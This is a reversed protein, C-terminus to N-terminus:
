LAPEIARGLVRKVRPDGRVKLHGYRVAERWDALGGEKALLDFMTKPITLQLRADEAQGATVKPGPVEVRYEDTKGPRTLGGSTLELGLVLKLKALQPVEGQIRGVAAAILEETPAVAASL